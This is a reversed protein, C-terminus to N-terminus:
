KEELLAKFCWVGYSNQQWGTSSWDPVVIEYTGPMTPINTIDFSQKVESGQDFLIIIGDIRVTSEIEIYYTRGELIKMNSYSGCTFITDSVKESGWYYLRPNVASPSWGSPLTFVFTYYSVEKEYGTVTVYTNKTLTFSYVGNNSTITENNVKVVAEGIYGEEELDLKFSIVENTYAITPLPKTSNSVYSVGDVEEWTITYSVKEIWSAYLDTNATIKDKSFDFPIKCYTDKYWNDFLYGERTPDDPKETLSDDITSVSKYLSNNGDYNYYYNVNWTTFEEVQEFEETEGVDSSTVNNECSTFITAIFLVLLIRYLKM